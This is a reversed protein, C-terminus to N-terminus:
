GLGPEQATTSSGAELCFREWKRSLCCSLSTMLKRHGWFLCALCFLSSGLLALIQCLLFDSLSSLWACADVLVGTPLCHFAWMECGLAPARTGCSAVLLWEKLTLGHLWLSSREKGPVLKGSCEDCPTWWLKSHLECLCLPCHVQGSSVTWKGYM